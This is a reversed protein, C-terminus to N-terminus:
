PQVSSEIHVTQSTKLKIWIKNVSREDGGNNGLCLGHRLELAFMSLQTSYTPLHPIFFIYKGLVELQLWKLM